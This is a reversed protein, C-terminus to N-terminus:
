YILTMGPLGTNVELTKFEKSTEKSNLVDRIARHPGTNYNAKEEQYFTDHLLIKPHAVSSIIGELERKVSKYDHDGDVFFLVNADQPLSRHITLATDLGDGLHLFVGKKGKVMRGRSKGPQEVHNVSPPLDISHIELPIKFHKATDYFIRASAGVNTGWEFIAQPRFRVVSGVMLMLENLPYPHMGVVPVLSDIVFDSVVWNNIEFENSNFNPALEPTEGRMKNRIKKALRKM